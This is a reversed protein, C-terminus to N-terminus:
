PLYPYDHPDRSIASCEVDRGLGRGETMQSDQGWRSWQGEGQGTRSTWGFSVQIPAHKQPMTGSGVGAGSGSRGEGGVEDSMEDFWSRLLTPGVCHESRRTDRGYHSRSATPRYHRNDSQIGVESKIEGPELDYVPGSIVHKDIEGSTAFVAGEGLRERASPRSRVRGSGTATAKRLTGFRREMARITLKLDKIKARQGVITQNLVLTPDIAPTTTRDTHDYTSSTATRDQTHDEAGELQEGLRNVEEMSRALQADQRKIVQEQWQITAVAKALQERLTDTPEEAQIPIIYSTRRPSTPVEARTLAVLYQHSAFTGSRAPTVLMPSGKMDISASASSEYGVGTEMKDKMWLDMHPTFHIDLCARITGVAVMLQKERDGADREVLAKLMDASVDRLTAIAELPITPIRSSPKPLTFALSVPSPNTNIDSVLSTSATLHSKGVNSDSISPTSITRRSPGTEANIGYSYSQSRHFTYDTHPTTRETHVDQTPSPDPTHLAYSSPRSRKNLDYREDQAKYAGRKAWNDSHASQANHQGISQTISQLASTLSVPLRNESKYLSTRGPYTAPTHWIDNISTGQDYVSPLNHRSM